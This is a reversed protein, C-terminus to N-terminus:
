ATYIVGISNPHLVKAGYDIHSKTFTSNLKIDRFTEIMLDRSAAMALSLGKKYVYTHYTTVTSPSGTGKKVLTSRRIECGNLLPIVGRAILADRYDGSAVPNQLFRVISPDNLLDNFPKPHMFCVMNDPSYGSATIGTNIVTSLAKYAMTMSSTISSEASVTGDGFYQNSSQITAGEIGGSGVTGFVIQDDLYLAGLRDGLIFADLQPGIGKREASFAIQHEVAYEATTINVATLTPDTPGPDTNYSTASFTSATTMQFEHQQYGQPLPTFLVTERSLGPLQSPIVLAPTMAETGSAFGSTLPSIAEKVYRTGKSLAEMRSNRYSEFAMNFERLGQGEVGLSPPRFTPVMMRYSNLTSEGTAIRFMEDLASEYSIPAWTRGKPVFVQDGFGIKVASEGLQSKVIQQNIDDGFARSERAKAISIPNQVGSEKLRQQRAQRRAYARESVSLNRWEQKTYGLSERMGEEEEEEEEQTPGAVAMRARGDASPNAASQAPGTHVPIVGAEEEAKATQEEGDEEDIPNGDVPHNVSKMGPSSGGPQVGKFSDSRLDEEKLQRTMKAFQQMEAISARGSSVKNLLKEYPTFQPGANTARAPADAVEAAQKTSSDQAPEAEGTDEKLRTAMARGRTKPSKNASERLRTIFKEGSNLVAQIPRALQGGKYPMTGVFPGTAPVQPTGLDPVASAIRGDGRTSDALGRTPDQFNAKQNVVGQPAQPEQRTAVTGQDSMVGTGVNTSLGYGPEIDEPKKHFLNTTTAPHTGDNGGPWSGFGEEAVPSDPGVDVGFKKAAARIKSKARAKEEPSAFHTQNFRAIANRVHSADNLPLKGDQEDDEPPVAFTKNALKDRADPDLEKEYPTPSNKSTQNPAEDPTEGPKHTEKAQHQPVTDCEEDIGGSNFTESELLVIGRVRDPLTLNVGEVVYELMNPQFREAMNLTTLPLGPREVDSASFFRLGRPVRTGDPGPEFYQPEAALSVKNVGNRIRQITRPSNVWGDYELQQLDDNWHLNLAGCPQKNLIRGTPHGDADEEFDEHEDYFPVTVGDGHQLERATYLNGNRSIGPYALIGSIKLKRPTYPQNKIRQALSM